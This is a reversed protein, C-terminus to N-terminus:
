STQHVLEPELQKIIEEISPTIDDLAKFSITSYWQIPSSDYPGIGCITCNVHGPLDKLGINIEPEPCKCFSPRIGLCPFIQGKKYDGHSHDKIAVVDKGVQIM